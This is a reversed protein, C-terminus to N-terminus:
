SFRLGRKMPSYRGSRAGHEPAGTSTSDLAAVLPHLFPHSIPCWDGAKQSARRADRGGARQEPAALRVGALLAASTRGGNRNLDDRRACALERACEGGDPGQLAGLRGGDGRLDGALRDRDVDGLAAVHLRPM